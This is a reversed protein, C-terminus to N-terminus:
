TAAGAKEAGALIGELATLNRRLLILAGASIRLVGDDNPTVPIDPVAEKDESRCIIDKCQQVVEQLLNWGGEQGPLYISRIVDELGQIPHMLVHKVFGRALIFAKETYLASNLIAEEAGM